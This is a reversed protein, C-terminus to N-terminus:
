ANRATRAVRGYASWWAAVSLLGVAGIMGWHPRAMISPAGGSVRDGTLELSLTIPSAMLAVSRWGPQTQTEEAPMLLVLGPGFASLAVFALMLLWRPSSGPWGLGALSRALLGSILLTWAAFGALMAGLVSAPWAGMWPLVQPVVLALLPLLVIVADHRMAKLPDAPREQSLRLMPWLVGLGVGVIVFMVKASARYADTVILGLAGSSALSVGAAFFLFITWAAAFTRPEGRRHAWPDTPRGEPSPDTM